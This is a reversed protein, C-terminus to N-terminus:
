AVVRDVDRPLSEIMSATNQLNVAVPETGGPRYFSSRVWLSETRRSGSIGVVVREVEYEEGVFLPGSIMRVEHDVILDVTPGRVPFPDSDFLQNALVSVMEFPIIPRGWPNQASFYWNSPETIVALKEALTFPYLPGMRNDFDMRVAVRPRAMGVRVDGLILPNEPPRIAALRTALESPGDGLSATGSLIEVGDAREMRLAAVDGDGDALIARVMDGDTCAARFHLSLCGREFWEQGWRAFALPAFQSLHTPGEITGGAFGMSRAVADDHITARGHFDQGDLMQRPQRPPGALLGGRREIPTDFVTASLM